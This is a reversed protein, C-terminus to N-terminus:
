ETMHVLSRYPKDLLRYGDLGDLEIFFLDVIHPTIQGILENAAAMTGGTALLDDVLLVSDDPLFADQQIEIAAEDYELVFEKSFCPGPLKGKKRVPVFGVGLRKALPVGLFFGRAELAAVKTFQYDKILDALDAILLSLAEQSQLVPMWDIFTIGKRPFDPFKRVLKTYLPEEKTSM